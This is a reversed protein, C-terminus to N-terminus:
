RRSTFAPRPRRTPWPACPRARPRGPLRLDFREHVRAIAGRYLLGLAEAHRDARWLALAAAPIDDPLPRSASTLRVERSVPPTASVRGSNPLTLPANIEANRHALLKIKTLGNIERCASHLRRRGRALASNILRRWNVLTRASSCNATQKLSRLQGKDNPLDWEWLVNAGHHPDNKELAGARATATRQLALSALRELNGHVCRSSGGLQPWRLSRAGLTSM